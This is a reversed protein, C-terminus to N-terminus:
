QLFPGCNVRRISRINTGGCSPCEKEILGSYFCTSCIDLVYNIGFYGVDAEMATKLIEYLGEINGTPAGGIEIYAIHGGNCYKHYAGEIQMKEKISINKAVDVHCSNTFYEKDTVGKVVGFRKRAAKQFKGATTEAPTAIVSFNLDYKECCADTFDRIRKVTALGFARAEETDAHTAGLLAYCMESIGCFGITLSGNKLAPEIEDENGLNESGLYLSNDGFIFPVDRVKLQKLINYRHMLSRACLDLTGDLNKIFEKTNKSELALM